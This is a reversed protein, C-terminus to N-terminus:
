QNVAEASIVWVVTLEAVQLAVSALPPLATEALSEAVTVWPAGVSTDTLEKLESGGAM